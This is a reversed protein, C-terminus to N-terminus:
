RGTESDDTGEASIPSEDTPEPEQESAEFMEDQIQSLFTYTLPEGLREGPAHLNALRAALRRAHRVGSLVAPRYRPRKRVHRRERRALVLAARHAGERRAGDRASSQLVFLELEDLVQEVFTRATM